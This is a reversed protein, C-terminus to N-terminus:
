YSGQASIITLGELQKAIIEARELERKEFLPMSREEGNGIPSWTEGNAKSLDM